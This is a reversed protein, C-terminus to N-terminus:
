DSLRSQWHEPDRAAHMLAIVIVGDGEVRYYLCYPFRELLYRRADRHAILCAGPFELIRDIAADVVGVFEEGLGTREAEYWRFAVEVDALAAPLFWARTV